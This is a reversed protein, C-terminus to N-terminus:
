EISTSRVHKCPLFFAMVRDTGYCYKCYNIETNEILCILLTNLFLGFSNHVQLDFAHEHLVYISDRTRPCRGDSCAQLLQEKRFPIGIIRLNDSIHRREEPSLPACLSQTFPGTPVGMVAIDVRVTEFRRVFNDFILQCVALKHRHHVEQRTGSLPKRFLGRFPSLTRNFDYKSIRV